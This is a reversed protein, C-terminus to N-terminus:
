RWREWEVVREAGFLVFATNILYFAAVRSDFVGRAFDAMHAIPSLWTALADGGGDPWLWAVLGSSLFLAIFTFALLGASIQSRTLASAFLGLSLFFGGILLAGVGLGWAAAPDVTPPAAAFARLLPGYALTPALTAAFLALTAAYKAGVVAGPTVPATLLTELTGSRREEAFLRMTLLPAAATMTLVFGWGSVEVLGASSPAGSSMSTVLIWFGTGVVVLFLVAVVYTTPSLVHAALERRCLVLWQRM